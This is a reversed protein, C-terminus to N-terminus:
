IKHLVAEMILSEMTELNYKSVMQLNPKQRMKKAWDCVLQGRTLRGALEVTAYVQHSEEIM